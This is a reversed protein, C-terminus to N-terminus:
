QPAHNTDHHAAAAEALWKGSERLEAARADQLAKLEADKADLKKSSWRWYVAFAPVVVLSVAWGGMKLAQLLEPTM